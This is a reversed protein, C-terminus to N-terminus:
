KGKKYTQHNERGMEECRIIFCDIFVTVPQSDKEDSLKINSTRSKYGVM